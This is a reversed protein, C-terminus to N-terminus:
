PMKLGYVIRMFEQAVEDETYEPHRIRIGARTLERTFNTLEVMVAFRGAPGMRRYSEYQMEAVEPSTDRSHMPVSEIIRASKSRGCEM